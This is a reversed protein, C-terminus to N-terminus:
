MMEMEQYGGHLLPKWEEEKNETPKLRFRVEVERPEDEWRMDIEADTGLGLFHYYERENTWWGSKENRKPKSPHAFVRGSKDAAAWWTTNM